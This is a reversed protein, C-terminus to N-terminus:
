DRLIIEPSPFYFLLVNEVVAPNPRFELPFAIQVVEVNEM